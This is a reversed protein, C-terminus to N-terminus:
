YSDFSSSALTLGQFIKSGLLIEEQMRSQIFYMHNQKPKELELFFFFNTFVKSRVKYDNHYARIWKM